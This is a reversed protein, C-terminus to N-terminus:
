SGIRKPTELTEFKIKCWFSGSVKRERLSGVLGSEGKTKKKGWDHSTQLSIIDGIFIGHPFPLLFDPKLDGSFDRLTTLISYDKM